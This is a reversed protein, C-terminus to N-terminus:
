PNALPIENCRGKLVIGLAPSPMPYEGQQRLSRLLCGVQTRNMVAPATFPTPICAVVLGVHPEDGSECPVAHNNEAADARTLSLNSTIM